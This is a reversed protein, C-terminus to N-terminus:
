GSLGEGNIKHRFCDEPDQQDDARKSIADEFSDVMM